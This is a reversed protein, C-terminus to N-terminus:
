VRIHTRVDAELKQLMAEFQECRSVLEGKDSHKTDHKLSLLSEVLDKFNELIELSDLDELTQKDSESLEEGEIECNRLYARRFVERLGTELDTIVAETM